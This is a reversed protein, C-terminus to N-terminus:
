LAVIIFITTQDYCLYTSQQFLISPESISETLCHISKWCFMLPSLIIKEFPERYPFFHIKVLVECVCINIPIIFVFLFIIFSRFSFIQNTMVKTYAVKRLYHRYCINILIHLVLIRMCQDPHPCSTYFPVLISFHWKGM